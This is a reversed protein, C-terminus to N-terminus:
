HRLGTETYTRSAAGIGAEALPIAKEMSAFGVANYNGIGEFRPKNDLYALWSRM